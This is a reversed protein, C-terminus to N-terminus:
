GTTVLIRLIIVNIHAFAHMVGVRPSGHAWAAAGALVITRSSQGTFYGMLAGSTLTVLAGIWM